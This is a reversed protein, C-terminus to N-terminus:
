KKSKIKRKLKRSKDHEAIADDLFEVLYKAANWPLCIRAIQRDELDHPECYSPSFFGFDIMVWGTHSYVAVVNSLSATIASSPTEIEKIETEETKKKAM